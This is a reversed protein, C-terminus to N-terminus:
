QVCSIFWVWTMWADSRPGFALDWAPELTQFFEDPQVFTTLWWANILRIVVLDRLFVPRSRKNRDRDMSSSPPSSSSSSAAAAAAKMSSMVPLLAATQQHSNKTAPKLPPFVSPRIGDQPTRRQYQNAPRRDDHTTPPLGQFPQGQQSDPLQATGTVTCHMTM